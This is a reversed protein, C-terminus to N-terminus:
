LVIDINFKSNILLELIDKDDLLVSESYGDSFISKPIKDFRRLEQKIELEINFITDGSMVNSCWLLESKFNYPTDRSSNYLQSKIRKNALHQTDTQKKSSDVNTIGFKIFEINHKTDKVKHSYLIAEKNKDFGRNGKRIQNLTLEKNNYGCGHLFTLLDPEKLRQEFEEDLSLGKVPTYGCFGDNDCKHLITVHKVPAIKRTYRHVMEQIARVSINNGTKASKLINTNNHAWTNLLKNETTNNIIDQDKMKVIDIYSFGCDHHLYLIIENRYNM